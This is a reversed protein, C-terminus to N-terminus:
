LCGKCQPHWVPFGTCTCFSVRVLIIQQLMTQLRFLNKFGSVWRCLVPQILQPVHMDDIYSIDTTMLFFFSMFRWLTIHFSSWFIIKKFFIWTCFLMYTFAVLQTLPCFFFFSIYRSTQAYAMESVTCSLQNRSQRLQPFLLPFSNESYRGKYRKFKSGHSQEFFLKLIMGLLAM